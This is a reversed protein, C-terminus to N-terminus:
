QCFTTITYKSEVGATTMGRSPGASDFDPTAGEMDLTDASSTGIAGFFLAFAILIQLKAM